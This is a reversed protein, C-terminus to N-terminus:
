VRVAVKQPDRVLWARSCGSSSMLRALNVNIDTM